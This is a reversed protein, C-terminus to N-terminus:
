QVHQSSGWLPFAYEVALVAGEKAGYKVVNGSTSLLRNFKLGLLRQFDTRLDRKYAKQEGIGATKPPAMEKIWPPSVVIDSRLLGNLKMKAVVPMNVFENDKQSQLCEGTLLVNGHNERELMIVAEPDKTYKFCFVRAQPFPASNREKLTHHIPLNHSRPDSFPGPAWRQVGPITNLYYEDEYHGHLTAGLRVIHRIAGLNGLKRQGEGTLKLPNILSLEGKHEIVVMNKNIRATTLRATCYFVYTNPDLKKITKTKWTLPLDKENYDDLPSVLPAANTCNLMVTHDKTYDPHMPM